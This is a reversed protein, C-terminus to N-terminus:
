SYKVQKYSKSWNQRCKSKLNTEIKLLECFKHKISNMWKKKVELRQERDFAIKVAWYVM